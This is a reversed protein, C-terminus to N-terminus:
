AMRDAMKMLLSSAACLDCFRRQTVSPNAGERLKAFAASQKHARTQLSRGDPAGYRGTERQRNRPRTVNGCSDCSRIIRRRWRTALLPSHSEFGYRTGRPVRDVTQLSTGNPAPFHDARPRKM